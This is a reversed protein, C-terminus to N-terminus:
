GCKKLKNTHELRHCTECLTIGNNVDYILRKFKAAEKIHHAQLNGGRKYGCKQCTYNDREFVSTRWERYKRSSMMSNRWGSIRGKWNYHNKGKMVSSQWNNRCTKSCFRVEEKTSPWALFDKGCLECKVKIKCYRPSNEGRPGYEKQYYGYCKMSCFHNTNQNVRKKQLKFKKKCYACEVFAQECYGGNKYNAAKDGILYKSRYEGQCKRSCFKRKDFKSRNVIKLENGCVICKKTLCSDCWRQTSSVPTFENKCKECIRQNYIIKKAM